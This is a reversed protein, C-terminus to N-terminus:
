NNGLFAITAKAVREPSEFPSEHGLRDEVSLEFNSFEEEWKRVQDVNEEFPVTKDLNGWVWLVKSKTNKVVDVFKERHGALLDGRLTGLNVSLIAETVFPHKEKGKVSGFLILDRDKKSTAAENYIKKGTEPDKGFAIQGAELYADSIAVRAAPIATMICSMFHPISDALRAILPKKAYFASSFLVLKPVIGRAARDRSWRQNAAVCVLGGTSHGVIAYTEKIDEREVYSLLDELQDTFMDLDYEFIVKEGGYKSYGHGYYDYSLVSYGAKVIADAIGDFAKMSTGLGHSLVVLPGEGNLSYHTFGHRDKIFKGKPETEDWCTTITTLEDPTLVETVRASQPPLSM